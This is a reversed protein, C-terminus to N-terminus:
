EEEQNIKEKGLRTNVHLQEYMLILGNLIQYISFNTLEMKKLIEEKISINLLKTIKKWSLIIHQWNNGELDVKHLKHIEENLNM